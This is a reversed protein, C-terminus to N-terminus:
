GSTTHCARCGDGAHFQRRVRPSSMFNKAAEAWPNRSETPMPQTGLTQTPSFGPNTLNFTPM